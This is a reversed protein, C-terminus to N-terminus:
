ELLAVRLSNISEERVGIFRLYDDFSGYTHLLWDIVNSMTLPEASMLNKPLSRVYHAMDPSIEDLWLLMREVAIATLAYDTVITEKAVGLAGLVVMAVVGTRDKGVACHFVLPLNELDSITEVVSAIHPAAEKLIQKYRYELFSKDNKALEPDSSVDMLPVHLYTGLAGDIMQYSGRLQLEQNTRLDVVTRLNLEKLAQIDNRTLQALNDSRFLREARVQRGDETTYGGLDRFNFVGEFLYFRNKETVEFKGTDTNNVDQM